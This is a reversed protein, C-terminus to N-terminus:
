FIAGGGGGKEKSFNQSHGQLCVAINLYIHLMVLVHKNHFLFFILYFLIFIESIDVVELCNAM